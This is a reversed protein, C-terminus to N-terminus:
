QPQPTPKTSEGGEQSWSVGVCLTPLKRAIAVPLFVDALLRSSLQFACRIDPLGDRRAEHEGRRGLLVRM